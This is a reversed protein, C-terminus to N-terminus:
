STIIEKYKNAIKNWKYKSDAIMKMENGIKILDYSALSNMIKTLDETNSFYIAKNYTTHENYGSSFAIIPLSLYMAECLSPNTGGASHGHVYINCNSRLVDLKERDYIADLLIVNETNKYKKKLDIGYQSNNFNGVIVIPMFQNKAFANIIMQINNDPQIRAVLFAYDNKLFTYEKYHTPTIKEKQAQDGGYAILTSELNYERTIYEKIGVNDSVLANANRVLLKEAKKIVKQAFSSWKNRQWDLGGFNAVIKGKQKKGLFPMIFGCGFGLFLVKDSHILADILSISDYLIGSAGHSSFPIYKLNAGKYRSGRSTMDKSSCYVTIEFEEALNRVLYDALTEFGGYTNPLGRTGVISLKIKESMKYQYNLSM